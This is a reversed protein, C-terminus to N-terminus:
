QSLASTLLNWGLELVPCQDPAEPVPCQDPPELAPCQDLGELRKTKLGGCFQQRYGLGINRGLISSAPAKRITNRNTDM